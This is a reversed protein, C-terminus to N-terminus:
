RRATRLGHARRLLRHRPVIEKNMGELYHLRIIATHNASIPRDPTGVFLRPAPFQSGLKMSHGDCDFGDESYEEGSQIKILGVNLLTDRDPTFALTGAINIGRIVAESKVDYEVSHGTRILVRSGAGPSSKGALDRGGVMTRKEGLSDGTTRNGM